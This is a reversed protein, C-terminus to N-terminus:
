GPDKDSDQFNKRLINNLMFIHTHIQGIAVNM